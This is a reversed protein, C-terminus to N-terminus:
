GPDMAYGDSSQGAIGLTLLNFEGYKNLIPAIYPSKGRKQPELSKEDRPENMNTM